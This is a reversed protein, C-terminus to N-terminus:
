PRQEWTVHSRKLGWQRVPRSLEPFMQSIVQAMPGEILPKMIWGMDENWFSHVPALGYRLASQTASGVVLNARMRRLDYGAVAEMLKAGAVDEPGAGDFQTIPDRGTFVSVIQTQLVKEVAFSVPVVFAREFPMEKKDSQVTGDGKIANRTLDVKMGMHEDIRQWDDAHDEIAEKGLDRLDILRALINGHLKTKFALMDEPKEEVSEIKSGEPFEAAGDLPDDGMPGLGPMSITPEAM